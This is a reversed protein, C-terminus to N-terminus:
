RIVPGLPGPRIPDTILLDPFDPRPGVPGPPTPDPEVIIRERITVVREVPASRLGDKDVVVLQFRHRGAPLGGDVTITPQDTTFSRQAGFDAM